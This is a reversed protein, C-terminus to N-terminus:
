GNADHFKLEDLGHAFDTIIDNGFGTNFIFEDSGLGGSLTDNGAGGTLTDGGDGGDLTDNGAGGQLNDDGDGGYLEDDGYTGYISNWTISLDNGM